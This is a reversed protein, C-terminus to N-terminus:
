KEKVPPNELGETVDEVELQTKCSPCNISARFDQFKEAGEGEIFIYGRVVWVGTCTTCSVKKVWLKPVLKTTM